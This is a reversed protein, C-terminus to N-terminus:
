IKFMTVKTLSFWCILLSSLLSILIKLQLDIPAYVEMRHIYIHFQVLNPVSFLSELINRSNYVSYSQYQADTNKPISFSNNPVIVLVKVDYLNFTGLFHKHKYSLTEDPTPWYILPELELSLFAFFTTIMKSVNAPSMQFRCSLDELPSDLSIRMLIMLSKDELSLMRSQGSKKSLIIKSSKNSLQKKAKDNKAKGKTCQIKKQQNGKRLIM